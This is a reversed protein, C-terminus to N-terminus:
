RVFTHNRGLKLGIRLDAMPDSTASKFRCDPGIGLTTDAPANLVSAFPMLSRVVDILRDNQEHFESVSRSIDFQAMRAHRYSKLIVQNPVSNKEIASLSRYTWSSSPKPKAFHAARAVARCETMVVVFPLLPPKCVFPCMDALSARHFRSPQDAADAAVSSSPPRDSGGSRRGCSRQVGRMRCCPSIPRAGSFPSIRRVSERRLRADPQDSSPRLLIHRGRPRSPAMDAVYSSRTKLGRRNAKQSILTMIVHQASRRGLSM